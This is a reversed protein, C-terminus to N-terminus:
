KTNEEKTNALHVSISDEDDPNNEQEFGQDKLQRILSQQIYDPTILAIHIPQRPKAYTSTILSYIVLACTILLNAFCICVIM